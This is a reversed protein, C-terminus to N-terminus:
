FIEGDGLYARRVEDHNRIEEITGTAIVRGYVLVTIRDSLRFVADMDHEILLMTYEGRLKSLLIKMREADDPGMGAMPEDLLLLKPQTALALGIELVRQEGHSLHGARTDRREALGIQELVKVAADRLASNQRVRSWFRFSNGSRSQVALLTNEFVTFERFVRTIQFTRAIGALSRAETSRSTIDAGDFAITGHDPTLDGGPGFLDIVPLRQSSHQRLQDVADVPARRLSLPTGGHGSSRDRLAASQSM